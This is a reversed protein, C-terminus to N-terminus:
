KGISDCWGIFHLFWLEFVVQLVYLNHQPETVPGKKSQDAICKLLSFCWVTSQSPARTTLGTDYAVICTKSMCSNMENAKCHNPHTSFHIFIIISWKNFRGPILGGFLLNTRVGMVSVSELYSEGSNIRWVYLNFCFSLM